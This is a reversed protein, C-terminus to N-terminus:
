LGARIESEKVSTSWMMLVRRFASFSFLALLTGSIPPAINLSPSTAPGSNKVSKAAPKAGKIEESSPMESVVAIKPTTTGSLTATVGQSTEVEDDDVEVIQLKKRSSNDTAAAAAAAATAAQVPKSSASPPVATAAAATAARAKKEAQERAEKQKKENQEKDQLAKLEKKANENSPDVVVLDSLDAVDQSGSDGWTRHLDNTGKLAEAFKGLAKRALARWYLAKINKADACAPLITPLYFLSNLSVSLWVFIVTMKM